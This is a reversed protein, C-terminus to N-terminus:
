TTHTTNLVKRRVMSRGGILEQRSRSTVGQEASVFSARTINHLSQGHNRRISVRSESSALLLRILL